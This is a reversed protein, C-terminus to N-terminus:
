VTDSPAFLPQRRVFITQSSLSEVLVLSVGAPRALETAVILSDGPSFTVQVNVFVLSPVIMTSFCVITQVNPAM